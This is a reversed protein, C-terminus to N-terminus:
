AAKKHRHAPKERKTSKSKKTGTRGAGTQELSQQLVKVLDIV